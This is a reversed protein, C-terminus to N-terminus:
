DRQSCTSPNNWLKILHNPKWSQVMNILPLRRKYGQISNSYRNSLKCFYISCVLVVYKHIHTHGKIDTQRGVDIIRDSLSWVGYKRWWDITHRRRGVNWVSKYIEYCFESGAEWRRFTEGTTKHIRRFGLLLPQEIGYIGMERRERWEVGLWTKFHRTKM